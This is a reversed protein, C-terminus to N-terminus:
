PGVLSSSVEKAEEPAMASPHYVNTDKMHGTIPNFCLTKPLKKTFMVQNQNGGNPGFM